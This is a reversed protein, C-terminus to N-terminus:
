ASDAGVSRGSSRRESSVSAKGRMVARNARADSYLEGFLSLLEETTERQWTLVQNPKAFPYHRDNTRIEAYRAFNHEVNVIAYAVDTFTAFTAFGSSTGM